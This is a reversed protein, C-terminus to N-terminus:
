GYMGISPDYIIHEGFGAKEPDYEFMVYVRISYDDGEEMRPDGKAYINDV